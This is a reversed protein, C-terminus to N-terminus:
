RLEQPMPTCQCTHPQFTNMLKKRGFKYLLISNKSVPTSAKPTRVGSQWDHDPAFDIQYRVGGCLCGGTVAKLIRLQSMLFNGPKTGRRRRESRPHKDRVFQTSVAFRASLFVEASPPLPIHLSNTVPKPSPTEWQMDFV